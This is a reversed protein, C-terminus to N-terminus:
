VEDDTDIDKYYMFILEENDLLSRMYEKDDYKRYISM